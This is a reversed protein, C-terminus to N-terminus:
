ATGRPAPSNDMRELAHHASHGPGLGLGSEISKEYRRERVKRSAYVRVKAIRSVSIPDDTYDVM